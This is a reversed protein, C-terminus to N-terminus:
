AVSSKPQSSVSYKGCTFWKKNLGRTKAPCFPNTLDAWDEPPEGELRLQLSRFIGRAEGTAAKAL